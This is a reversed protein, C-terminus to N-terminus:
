WNAQLWTLAANITDESTMRKFAEMLRLLQDGTKVTICQGLQNCYGTYSNCTSGPFKYKLLGNLEMSPVCTGKKTRCCVLCMQDQGQCECQDLFYRACVPGVCAGDLCTNGDDGCTTNRPKPIPEPCVATAGAYSCETEKRCTKHASLTCNSECCLGKQPSCQYEPKVRCEPIGSTINGPHCCVDVESCRQPAGCDCEEGGEVISNGCFAGQNQAIFCKPGKNFIVSWMQAKSCESFLFNNPKKGDVALDYMIFYGPEGEPRCLTNDPDHESGFSHGLEHATTLVSGKRLVRAGFNKLSVVATNFN